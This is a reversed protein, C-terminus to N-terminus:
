QVNVETLILFPGLLMLGKKLIESVDRVGKTVCFETVFIFKYVMVFYFPLMVQFIGELYSSVM